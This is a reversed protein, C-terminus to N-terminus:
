RPADKSAGLSAVFRQLVMWYVESRFLDNHGCGPVLVKTRNATPLALFTGEAEAAPVIQDDEGHLVLAPVHCHAFKPLPDLVAADEPTLPDGLDFRRRKAVGILDSSVSEFVFGAVEPRENRCVEAALAGGLSRGMVVLKRRRVFKLAAELVPIADGISSRLTPTGTSQGYGRYDVVALSVGVKREYKDALDDYDAVVEGNGHFLLLMVEAGPSDYIRLHLKADGAVDVFVDQSGPPKPSKNKRPHFLARNFDPRDFVSTVDSIM